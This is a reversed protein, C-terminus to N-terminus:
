STQRCVSPTALGVALAKDYLNAQQTGEAQIQLVIKTATVNDPNPHVAFPGLIVLGGRGARTPPTPPTTLVFSALGYQELIAESFLRLLMGILTQPKQWASLDKSEIAALAYALWEM